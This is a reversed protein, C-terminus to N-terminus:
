FYQEEFRALSDARTYLMLGLVLAWIPILVYAVGYVTPTRFLWFAVLGTVYSFTAFLLPLKGISRLTWTLQAIFWGLLVIATVNVINRLLAVSGVFAETHGPNSLDFAFLIDRGQLDILGLLLFALAALTGIIAVLVAGTPARVRAWQMCVASLVVLAIGTAFHGYGTWLWSPSRLGVLLQPVHIYDRLSHFGMRPEFYFINALHMAFALFVFLAAVGAAKIQSSM